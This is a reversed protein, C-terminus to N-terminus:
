AGLPRPDRSGLRPAPRTGPRRIPPAHFWEFNLPPQEVVGIFRAQISNGSMPSGIVTINDGVHLDGARVRQHFNGEIQTAPSISITRPQGFRPDMITISDGEIRTIPGFAGHAMGGRPGGFPRGFPLAPLPAPRPGAQGGVTVGAWFVLGLLLVAGCVWLVAALCGSHRMREWTEGVSGLNV